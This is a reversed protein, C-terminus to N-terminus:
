NQVLVEGLGPFNHAILIGDLTKYQEQTLPEPLGAIVGSLLQKFIEIDGRVLILTQLASFLNSQTTTLLKMYIEPSLTIAGLLNSWIPANPETMNNVANLYKELPNIGPSDPYFNQFWDAEYYPLASPFDLEFDGINGDVAYLSDGNNENTAIQTLIYDGIISNSKNSEPIIFTEVM